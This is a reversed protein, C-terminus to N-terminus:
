LMEKREKNEPTDGTKQIPICFGLLLRDKRWRKGRWRKAERGKAGHPFTPSERSPLFIDAWRKRENMVTDFLHKQFCQSIKGINYDKKTMKDITFSKGFVVFCITIKACIQSFRVPASACSSRPPSKSPFLTANIM